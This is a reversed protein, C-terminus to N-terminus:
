AGSTEDAEEAYSAYPGNADVYHLFLQYHREGALPDRWHPVKIGQYLLGAGINQSIAHDKGHLDTLCIPWANDAPEAALAITVSVECAKRDRHRKLVAGSEYIRWFSYSPLLDRGVLGSVTRAMARLLKQGAVPAYEDNQGNYAHESGDGVARMLGLKASMDM